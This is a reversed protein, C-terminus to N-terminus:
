VLSLLDRWLSPIDRRLSRDGFWSKSNSSKQELSWKVEEIEWLWFQPKPYVKVAPTSSQLVGDNKQESSLSHNILEKKKGDRRGSPTPRWINVNTILWWYPVSRNLSDRCVIGIIKAMRYHSLYCNIVLARDARTDLCWVQFLWKVM